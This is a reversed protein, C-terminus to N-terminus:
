IQFTVNLLNGSEFLSIKVKKMIEIIEKVAKIISIEKCNQSLFRQGLFFKWLNPDLLFHLRNVQNFFFNIVYGIKYYFFQFLWNWLNVGREQPM